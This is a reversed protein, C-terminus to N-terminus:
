KTAACRQRWVPYMYVDWVPMTEAYRLVYKSADAEEPARGGLMPMGPSFKNTPACCLPLVGTLFLHAQQRYAHSHQDGTDIRRLTNTLQETALEM